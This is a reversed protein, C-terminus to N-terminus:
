NGFPLGRLCHDSGNHRVSAWVDLWLSYVGTRVSSLIENQDLVLIEQNSLGPHLPWISRRSKFSTCVHRCSASCEVMQTIGLHMQIKIGTQHTCLSTNVASPESSRPPIRIFCNLKLVRDNTLHRVYMCCIFGHIPYNVSRPLPSIIAMPHEM